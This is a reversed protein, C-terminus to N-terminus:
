ETGSLHELGRSIYGHNKQPTSLIFPPLSENLPDEMGIYIYTYIYIRTHIYIYITIKISNSHLPSILSQVMLHPYFPIDHSKVM